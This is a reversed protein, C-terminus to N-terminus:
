FIGWGLGAQSTGSAAVLLSCVQWQRYAAALATILGAAAAAVVERVERGAVGGALLAGAGAM